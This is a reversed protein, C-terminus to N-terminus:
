LTLNTQIWVRIKSETPALISRLGTIYQNKEVNNTITELIKMTSFIIMLIKKDYLETVKSFVQDINITNDSRDTNFLEPNNLEM